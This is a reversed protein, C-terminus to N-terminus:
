AEEWHIGKGILSPAITPNIYRDLPNYCYLTWALLSFPTLLVAGICGFIHCYFNPLLAPVWILLCLLLSLLSKLVTHSYVVFANKLLGGLRNTYIPVMVLAFAFIPLVLLLSIGIPVMSLCSLLLTGYSGASYYVMLCLTYILGALLGIGATLKYNGKIGKGLDTPIHVNELWAYQRLVRSVGSVGISFLATLLTFILSYLIDLYILTNGWNQESPADQVTTYLGAIFLDRFAICLLLPLFFLLLILGLLLLEKWHLRVVDFFVARRTTPLMSVTYANAAPKQKM